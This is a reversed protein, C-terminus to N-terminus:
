KYAGSAILTGRLRRFAALREKRGGGCSVGDGYATLLAHADRDTLRRQGSVAGARRCRDWHYEFIRAAAEVCRETAEVDRGALSRWHEETWWQEHHHIQGLCRARGGDQPGLPSEEGGHVFYDLASEFRFTTAVLAVMDERAFKTGPADDVVSAVMRVRGEADEKSEVRYRPIDWGLMEQELPSTTHGLARATVLVIFPALGLVVLVFLPHLRVSPLIKRM